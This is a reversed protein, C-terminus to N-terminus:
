AALTCLPDRWPTYNLLQLEVKRGQLMLLSLSAYDIEFAATAPLPLALLRALAMRIVGGHCVLAVTKGAHERRVRELVATVRGALAEAPEADPIGRRELELLWDFASIGFREQVQDWTLGTWAGFDVERLESLTVTPHGNRQALPRATQQARQMPSVYLADLRARELFDALRRAQELGRPSLGMDIRGGFVRLYPTEVEGHRVLILRTTLDSM